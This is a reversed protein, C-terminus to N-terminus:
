LKRTKITVEISEDLSIPPNSYDLISNAFPRIKLTTDGPIITPADPPLFHLQITQRDGIVAVKASGLAKGPRSTVFDFVTVGKMQAPRSLRIELADGFDVQNNRNSDIHEAKTIFFGRPLYWVSVDDGALASQGVTDIGDRGVSYVVGLDSNHLYPRSWPDYPPVREFYTGVLPGLAKASFTAVPMSKDERLQYLRVTKSIEELDVLARKFRVYEIDALYQDVAFILLTGMILLVLM